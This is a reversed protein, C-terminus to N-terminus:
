LIILCITTNDQSNHYKSLRLLKLCIKKMFLMRVDDRLVDGNEGKFIHKGTNYVTDIVKESTLVDWLGDTAIVIFKNNKHLHTHILEPEAIVYPHLWKDGLSRSVALSSEVRWVSGPLPDKTVRGGLCTIRKEEDKRNPKHDYSLNVVKNEDNMVARSDGANSTWIDNGDRIVTIATTGCTSSINDPLLRNIMEYSLILAKDVPTNKELEQKLVDLHYLKMFESVEKGGHGDCVLFYDMNKYFKFACKHTDEQYDRSGIDEIVYAAM